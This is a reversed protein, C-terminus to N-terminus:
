GDSLLGPRLRPRAPIGTDALDPEPTRAAGFFGLSGLDALAVM